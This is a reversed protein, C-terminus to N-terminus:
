ANANSGIEDVIGITRLSHVFGEADAQAQQTSVTYETILKRALEEITIPEALWAWMREGTENLVFLEAARTATDLTRGTTPVLLLEGAVRRAVIGSVRRFQTQGDNM